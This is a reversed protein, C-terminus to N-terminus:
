SNQQEDMLVALRKKLQTRQQQYAKETIDGRQHRIDLDGIQQVLNDIQMTLPVAGTAAAAVAPLKRGRWYLVASLVMLGIGALSLGIALPLNNIASLPAAAAAKPTLEFRLTQGATVPEALYDEFQGGSFSQVGMPQFQSSSVTFEGPTLMLEAQNAMRYHVPFELVASGTIPLLYSVHMNYVEGPMVPQISTVTVGDEGLIYGEQGTVRLQAGPPLTIKVSPSQLGELVTPGAFARDSTNNFSIVQAVLLQDGHKQIQTLLLGIEIVSADETKEYVTVPMALRGDTAQCPTSDSAFLVENYLV